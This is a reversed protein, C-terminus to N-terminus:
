KESGTVRMLANVARALDRSMVMCLLTDIGRGMTSLRQGQTDKARLKAIARQFHPGAFL